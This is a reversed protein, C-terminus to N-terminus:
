SRGPLVNCEASSWTVFVQDGPSYSEHGFLASQQLAIFESGDGLTIVLKRSQGLYIIHKITGSLM